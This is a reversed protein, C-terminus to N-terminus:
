NKNYLFSQKSMIMIYISQINVKVVTPLNLISTNYSTSTLILLWKIIAIMIVIIELPPIVSKVGAVLLKLYPWLFKNITGIDDINSLTYTAQM